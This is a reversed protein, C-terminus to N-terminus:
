SLLQTNDHKHPQKIKRKDKIESKHQQNTSLKKKHKKNYKPIKNKRKERQIEKVIKKHEKKNLVAIPPKPSIDEDGKTQEEQGEEQDDKENESEGKVEDEDEDEDDYEDGDKGNKELNQLHNPSVLSTSSFSHDLSLSSKLGTLSQYYFHDTDVKGIRLNMIDRDVDIIDDLTRPIYAEKFVEENVEEAPTFDIPRNAIKEQIKELYTPVNEDTMTLDTIFDFLEHVTMNDVGGKKFFNTINTSDKRLFELAYPHDHEVSQSVDIIWLKGKWYLINYESLDAHVLRCKHYMTRMILIIQFYTQRMKKEDLKAEKLKPATCGDKGLFRMVLVHTRLLIPTPCPIGAMQLRLLNRLEKEAWLKVMKRPNHRCYGRRFRFEGTVYKDRDKFIL